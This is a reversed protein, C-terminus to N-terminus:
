EALQEASEVDDEESYRSIVSSLNIPEKELGVLTPFSYYFPLAPPSFASLACPRGHLPYRSLADAAANLTGKTHKITMDYEGLRMAWRALKGSSWKADM